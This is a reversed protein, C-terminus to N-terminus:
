PHRSRGGAGYHAGDRYATATRAPERLRSCCRGCGTTDTGVVLKGGADYFAKEMDMFRRLLKGEPDSGALKDLNGAVWNRVSPAMAAKAGDPMGPWDPAMHAKITLTSTLTVDHDILHQVLNTFEPGQLDLDLYRFGDSPCKDAQKSEVWDTAAFFGHELNDIGLEAAERYTVACLHGTIKLGRAHVAEIAAGLTARDLNM